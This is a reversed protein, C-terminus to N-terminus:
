PVLQRLTRDLATHRVAVQRAARSLSQRRSIGKPLLGGYEAALAGWREAFRGMASSGPSLREVLPRWAASDPWRTVVAQVM